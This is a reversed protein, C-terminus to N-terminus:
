QGRKNKLWKLLEKLPMTNIVDNKEIWGRQATFIGFRINDLEPDGHADTSIALKIGREKAMRCHVDRLDLREPHANVELAVHYEAAADMVTEMDLEIPDRRGLLRGTPHAIIHVLPHKIARVVRQTMAQRPQAWGSHVAAIVIDLKELIEDPYDLTGDAKIDVETGALLVLGNLEENIARIEEIEAELREVSLGDAVILSQSHDTIALYEYGRRKAADAMERVSLHGDSYVTHSHLDGRIDELEILRPLRGEEAAAIEGSDERLVPPILPLGLARYVGEEDEGALKRDDKIRFVGYENVKLGRKQARERLRVNHEKSGTFYQLAAGFSEPSVVRLDVQLGDSNRVSAKTGGHAVVEAVDPLETFAETVATADTASVLVDIDGITEKRRRISGALDGALVESRALMATLFKQGVPLADGLLMRGASRRLLEIGHLINEETKAGFGKTGRLKGEKCARELDEVTEIGIERYLLAARKPGLGPIRLMELLGEPVQMRLEELKECTGTELFQEIKEATAKGVGELQMLEGRAAVEAIEERLGELMRATRQYSRTKFANGGVLDNLDALEEFMAALDKNTM